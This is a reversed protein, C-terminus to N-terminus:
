RILTFDGKYIDSGESGVYEIEAYFVYVGPLAHDGNWEGNWGVNPDLNGDKINSASFVMEGWRDYVNLSKINRVRKGKINWLDNVKDGNPTFATPWWVDKLIRVVVRVRDQITCGAADTITILFDRTTDAPYRLKNDWSINQNLNLWATDRYNPNFTGGRVFNLLTDLQVEQDQDVIITQDVGMSLKGPEILTLTTDHLCGNIDRVTLRYNGQSLNNFKTNTSFAGNNFSYELGQANGTAIIGAIDIAGNREGFCLPNQSLVNFGVLPNGIELVEIDIFEICGNNQDKVEVRYSGPKDITVKPTGAGAIISGNATQWTYRDITGSQGRSGSADLQVQKVSCTLQGIQSIDPIPKRLDATVNVSTSDVCGNDNNTVIIRYSGTADVKPTYTNGNQITGPGAWKVSFNSGKSSGNGDLDVVLRDCTIPLPTGTAVTPKLVDISINYTIENTCNSIPDTVFLKYTGPSNIATTNGTQPGPNVFSGNTTSWIYNLPSGSGSTSALGDLTISTVACTLKNVGNIAAKPFDYWTVPVADFKLCRDNLVVNGTAPDLNGMFVAIYYTKGLQMTAPDFVFTGNGNFRLFTGGLPNAQSGDYLVYRIVDNGDPTGAAYVAQATGDKCLIIPTKNLLGLGNICPCEYTNSITDPLCSHRDNIVLRYVDNNKVWDTQWTNAGIFSGPLVGSPIALGDVTWSARDGNQGDVTIRYNEATNDCEPPNAGLWNPADWHTVTVTDTTICGRANETLEYTYTGKGTVTTNTKDIATDAISASGPGSLFRWSPSGLNTIGNLQYNYFCISDNQGADPNPYPNWIIPQNNSVRKCPDLPDVIGDFDKDDGVVRTIYYAKGTVMITPDFCIMDLRSYFTDIKPLAPNIENWSSQHFIYMVVDEPDTIEDKISNISVCKDVCVEIPITDLQGADINGCNCNYDDIILNSICGNADQIEVKFQTLSVLTDTTYVNGVITGGGQIITFPPKGDNIVITAKYPYRPDNYDLCIKQDVFIFPSPNFTISVQDAALCSQNDESFEFVYTGYVGQTNVNSTPLADDSFTVGSPGSILKWKLSSGTVSSKGQLDYITGCIADDVGANPLPNQFFSFPKPGDVQVCGALFDIGGQGNKKGLLAFIYYTTNYSLSADYVITKSSLIKIFTGGAANDPDPDTTLVFILTDNPDPQETQDDYFFTFSQDECKNEVSKSLQGVVNTCKCEHDFNFSLICGMVDQILITYSTLNDHFNSTYINNVDITGNGQVVTYPPTGGKVEFRLKYQTQKVNCLYTIGSSDPTSNFFLDVTDSGDCGLRSESYVYRYIGFKDVKVNSKPDTIDTITSSGPGSLQTWQGGVDKTGQFQNDLNCISDNPGAQPAPVPRIAVRICKECSRGCDTDYFVCVTGTDGPPLLWKIEVGSSDPKTTVFGGDVTWTYFNVKQSIFTDIFYNGNRGVCLVLDGALPFCKPALDGENFTECFTKACIAFETQLEVRVNVEVCYDEDIADVILREDLSITKKQFDNKKYWRYEFQYTEGVSCPRLISVNPSIEVMGGLCQVRWKPTYDVNVATLVISSDCRYPDTSKPLDINFQDKCPQHARGLADIYPENDCTIYFVDAPMPQDLVNFKVVSDYKCCNADTFQERYEGSQNIRQTHWKYGGPNVQEWCLIRDKGLRDAIPRVKVTACQPGEQSCISGSQPNGIYATVCIVFDGQDPFDLTIENSNGGVEDGDLTWVYTPSCGGPQDNVFFRVNCAGVCVPQIIKSAINNIFGLPSLSPPGGGSTSLTFDCIDGSCGDVWLYYTKCAQLNATVTQVSNPPVCPISRCAIEEGCNCDGWIGFQLGQTTTCGGITLTVTVSGGQCVFGWWSTNHGAGGQSCLPSCPSPITSPNNCAYGNVEDLSCLVSALECEEAMPPTCQALLQPSNSIWFICILSLLIRYM